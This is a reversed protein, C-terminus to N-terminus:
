IKTTVKPTNSVGSWIYNEWDTLLTTGRGDKRAAILFKKDQNEGLTILTLWRDNDKSYIQRINVKTEFLIDSIEKSAIGMEKRAEEKTVKGSEKVGKSGSKNAM